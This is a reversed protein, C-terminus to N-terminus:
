GFDFASVSDFSSEAWIESRFGEEGSVFVFLLMSVLVLVLLM